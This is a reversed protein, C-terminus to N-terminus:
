SICMLQCEGGLSGTQNVQILAVRDTLSYLGAYSLYAM